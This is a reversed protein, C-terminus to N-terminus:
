ARIGALYCAGEDDGAAYRSALEAADIEGAARAADAAEDDNGTTTQAAGLRAIIASVTAAPGWTRASFEARSAALEAALHEKAAALARSAAGHAGLQRQLRFQTTRAVALVHAVVTDVVVADAM